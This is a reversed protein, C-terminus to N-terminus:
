PGVAADGRADALLRLTESKFLPLGWKPGPFNEVVRACLEADFVLPIEPLRQDSLLDAFHRFNEPTPDVSVVADPPIDLSLCLRLSTDVSVILARDAYRALHHLNGHVSPGAAILAAPKGRWAGALDGARGAALYAAANRLVNEQSIRGYRCLHEVEIRHRATLLDLRARVAEAQDPFRQRSPGHEHWALGDGTHPGVPAFAADLTDPTCLFFRTHTFLPSLDRACLAARLVEADPEVALLAGTFGDAALLAECAYGLSFGLLVALGGGPSIGAAFREAERRPDRRSTYALSREGDAVVLAPFGSPTAEVSYRPPPATEPLHPALWPWRALASARNDPWFRHAM